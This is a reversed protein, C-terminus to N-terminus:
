YLDCVNCFNCMISKFVSSGMNVSNFSVVSSCVKFLNLKLRIIIDFKVNNLMKGSVVVVKIIFKRFRKLEM